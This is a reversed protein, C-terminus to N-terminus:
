RSFWYSSQELLKKRNHIMSYTWGQLLDPETHSKSTLTPYTVTV